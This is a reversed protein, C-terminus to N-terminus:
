LPAERFKTYYDSFDSIPTTGPKIYSSIRDSLEKVSEAKKMLVSGDQNQEYVVRDGEKIDLAKRIIVPITVQGQSSVTALIM